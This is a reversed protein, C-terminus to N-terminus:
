FCGVDFMWCGVDLPKRAQAGQFIPHQINMTPHEINEM